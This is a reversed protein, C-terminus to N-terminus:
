RGTGLRIGMATAVETAVAQSNKITIGQCYALIAAIANAWHKDRWPADALPPAASAFLATVFSIDEPTPAAGNVQRLRRQDVLNLPRVPYVVGDTRLSFDWESVRELAKDLDYEM